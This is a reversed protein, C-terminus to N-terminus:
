KASRKGETAAVKSVEAQAKAVAAPPDAPREPQAAPVEEELQKQAEKQEDTTLFDPQSTKQETSITRSQGELAKLEKTIQASRALTEDTVESGALQEQERRLAEVITSTEQKALEPYDAIVESPVPKGERVAQEVYHKHLRANELAKPGSIAVIRGEFEPGYGLLKAFRDHWLVDDELTPDRVAGQAHAYITQARAKGSETDSTIIYDTKRPGRRIYLGLRKAFSYVEQAWPQNVPYFGYHAPKTGNAVADLEIKYT